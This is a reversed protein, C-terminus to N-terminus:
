NKRKKAWIISEFGWYAWTGYNSLLVRKTLRSLPELVLGILFHIVPKYAISSFIIDFNNKKLKKIIEDFDPPNYKHTPDDYYNLTGKRHPFGVSAKTPFSLFLKGDDKLISIMADLTM